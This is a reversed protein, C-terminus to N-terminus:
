TLLRELGYQCVRIAPATLMALRHDSPSAMAKFGGKTPKLLLVNKAFLIEPNIVLCYAVWAISLIYSNTRDQNRLLKIYVAGAKDMEEKDGRGRNTRQRFSARQGDRQLHSEISPRYLVAM